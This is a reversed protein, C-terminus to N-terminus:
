VHSSGRLGVMAISTAGVGGGHSCREGGGQLRPCCNSQTSLSRWPSVSTQPRPPSHPTNPFLFICCYSSVVVCTDYSALPWQPVPYVATSRVLFFHPKSGCGSVGVPRLPFALNNGTGRHQGWSQGGDLQRAHFDGPQPHR